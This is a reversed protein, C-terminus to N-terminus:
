VEELKKLKKAGRAVLGYGVAYLGILVYIVFMLPAVDWRNLVGSLTTLLQLVISILIIGALGKSLYDIARKYVIGKVNYQYRHMQVAAWIGICWLYVYPIVITFIIAWDPLFFPPEGADNSGQQVILWTYLSTLIIPVLFVFGNLSQRSSGSPKLTHYLGQAGRSIFLIAAFTLALALYQRLITIDSMLHPYAHRVYSRLSSLISNLPLSFALFMLGNAIHRFYPGEKTNLIQDAYDKVRVFGYLAALYIVTLPVVISLSLLRASAESLGFKKLIQTDQPLTLALLFYIVLLAIFVLIYVKEDYGGHKTNM